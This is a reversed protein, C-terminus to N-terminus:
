GRHPRSRKARSPQPAPAEVGGGAQEAAGRRLARPPQGGARVFARRMREADVFGCARAIAALSEGGAAEVRSRAAEVRLREVAKAPTEGTAALFARGFQRVSLCAHEALREVGLAEALHERMYGLVERMRDSAPAMEGLASFQSQRGPRRHYMVLMRATAAAVAAGVDEEIMALALDIGATIGASTWFRGDRTYVPDHAVKLAPFRRQLEATYKWHTTARRGDLLGSAALLFAGTCVSAVRRARASAALLTPLAGAVTAPSAPATGGVVVFTDFARTGAEATIVELGSSSRVAGGAVSVVHCRYGGRELRNGAVEFTALPGSLDQIQFGPYVLFAVDRLVPAAPLFRDRRDSM